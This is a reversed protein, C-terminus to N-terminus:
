VQLTTNFVSGALVSSGRTALQKDRWGINTGAGYARPDMASFNMQNRPVKDLYKIAATAMARLHKAPPGSKFGPSSDHKNAKTGTVAQFANPRMLAVIVGNKASPAYQRTHNLITGMVM